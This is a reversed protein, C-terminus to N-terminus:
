VEEGALKLVASRAQPSLRFRLTQLRDLLPRLAPVLNLKKADLLVGLTGTFPIRLSEAIRRALGDDLIVISGPIELALM